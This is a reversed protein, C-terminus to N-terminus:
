KKYIIRYNVHVNEKDKAFLNRFDRVCFSIGSIQQSSINEIWNKDDWINVALLFKSKHLICSKMGKM